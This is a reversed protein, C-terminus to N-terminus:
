LLQAALSAIEDLEQEVQSMRYTHGILLSIVCWENVPPLLLSCM